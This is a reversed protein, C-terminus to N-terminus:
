HFKGGAPRHRHPCCAGHNNLPNGPLSNQQGHKRNDTHAIAMISSLLIAPKYPVCPTTVDWMYEEPQSSGSSHFSCPPHGAAPTAGPIARLDFGLRTLTNESLTIRHGDMKVSRQGGPPPTTANRRRSWVAHSLEPLVHTLTNTRQGSPCDNWTSCPQGERSRPARHRSPGLLIYAMLPTTM